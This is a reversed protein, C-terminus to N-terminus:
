SRAACRACTPSAGKRRTRSAGWARCATSATTPAPWAGSSGVVKGDWGTMDSILQELVLLTGKRRRYYITKAVDVRRARVDLASVLRTAVLDAIYPVAWDSALEVFGDDWVRDQNRKLFAAQAGISRVFARLVGGGETDDLERYIAPLWQWLKETYYERYDDRAIPM